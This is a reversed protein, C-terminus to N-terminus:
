ALRRRSASRRSSRRRERPSISHHFSDGQTRTGAGVQPERRHEAPSPLAGPGRRAEHVAGPDLHQPRRDERAGQARYKCFNDFEKNFIKKIRFIMNKLFIVQTKKQKPTFLEFAGYMLEADQKAEDDDALDEEQQAFEPGDAGDDKANAGPMKKKGRPNRSMRHLRYGTPDPRDPAEAHNDNNDTKKDYEMAEAKKKQREEERKAHDLLLVKQKGPKLNCIFNEPKSIIAKSDPCNLLFNEM